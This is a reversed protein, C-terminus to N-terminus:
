ICIIILQLLAYIKTVISNQRFYLLHVYKAPWVNFSVDHNLMSVSGLRVIWSDVKQVM